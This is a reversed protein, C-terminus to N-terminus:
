VLQPLALVTAQHTSWFTNQFGSGYNQLATRRLIYEAAPLLNAGRMGMAAIPLIMCGHTQVTRYGASPLPNYFMPSVTSSTYDYTGVSLPTVQKVYVTDGVILGTPLTTVTLPYDGSGDPVGTATILQDDGDVGGVVRCLNGGDFGANAGPEGAHNTVTVVYPGAGTISVVTRERAIYPLAASTHRDFLGATVQYYQRTLNGGILATVAAYDALQSTMKLWALCEAQVHQRQGGDEPHTVNFGRSAEVVCCGNSAVRIAAATKDATSWENGCLGAFVQSLFPARNGSYAGSTGNIQYPCITQYDLSATFNAGLEVKNYFAALSAWTPAGSSALVPLSALFGDIDAVRWPKNELDDSPWCYPALAGTAPPTSVVHVVTALDLVGSRDDAETAGTRSKAKIIAEGPRVVRDLNLTRGITFGNVDNGAGFPGEDLAQSNTTGYVFGDTIGHMYRSSVTAPVPFSELVKLGAPATAYHSGDILTGGNYSDVMTVTADVGFTLTSGGPIKGQMRIM